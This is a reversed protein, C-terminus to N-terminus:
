DAVIGSVPEAIQIELQAPEIAGGIAPKVDQALAAIGIERKRQKRHLGRNRKVLRM